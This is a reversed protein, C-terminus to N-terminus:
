EQGAQSKEEENKVPDVSEPLEKANKMVSDVLHSVEKFPRSALYDLVPQLVNGDLTYKKM